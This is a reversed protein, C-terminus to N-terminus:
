DDKDLAQYHAEDVEFEDWRERADEATPMRDYRNRFWRCFEQWRDEGAQQMLREKTRGM